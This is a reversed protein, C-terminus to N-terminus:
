ETTTNITIPAKTKKKKRKPRTTKMPTSDGVKVVFTDDTQQTVTTPTQQKQAQREERKKNLREKTKTQKLNQQMKNAMGKFDMKGNMGMKSMMEKIGPIDKMKDMIDSAEQLLESEKLDGKKIKDELKGGIDKVLSLIEKPNKMINKMFADQDGITKATEEAIEKALSGIKGGMLGDLHSKIKEPNMFDGSLDEDNVFFDKMGEMTEAIKKHLDEENISEFLKSTEEFKDGNNLKDVISFLMLQLYKWITKKTKETIHEDKMLLSFNINPLLVCEKDFLSENEYILEIFLKPFVESCHTYCVDLDLANLKETLEPFTSLLDKKFDILIQKFKENSMTYSDKIKKYRKNM